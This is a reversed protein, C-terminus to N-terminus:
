LGRVIAAFQSVRRPDHPTRSRRSQCAPSFNPPLPKPPTPCLSRAQLFSLLPIPFSSPTASWPKGLTTITISATNDAVALSPKPPLDVQAVSDISLLQAVIRGVTRIRILVLSEGVYHDTAEGGANRVFNEIEEVKRLNANRGGFDWLEVEMVYVQDMRLDAAEFVGNARLLRGIRDAPQVADVHEINSFIAAHPADRQAGAQPGEQYDRLRRLFERLEQDTSLLVLTKDQDVSLLTLGCREWIEEEIAANPHLRVRLILSPDIGEPPRRAQFTQLVQDIERRLAPGHERYNRPPPPPFGRRRRPNEAEIRPLFINPLNPM